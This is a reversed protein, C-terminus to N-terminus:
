TSRPRTSTGVSRPRPRGGDHVPRAPVLLVRGRRERSPSNRTQGPSTVPFGLIAVEARALSLEALLTRKEEALQSVIWQEGLLAFRDDRLKARSEREEDMLRQNDTRATEVQTKADDLRNSSDTLEAELDAVRATVDRAKRAAVKAAIQTDALGQKMADLRSEALRLSSRMRSNEDQGQILKRQLHIELGVGATAVLLSAVIGVFWAPIPRPPPPSPVKERRPRTLSAATPSLDGPRAPGLLTSLRAEDADLGANISSAPEGGQSAAAECPPEMREDDVRDETSDGWSEDPTSGSLDAAPKPILVATGQSVLGEFGQDDFGSYASTQSSDAIPGSAPPLSASANLEAAFVSMSSPRDEIVRSMARRCLEDLRPDLSPRLTLADPPETTRRLKLVEAASGKFPPYGTLLQYLIVGLSYIDTPEGISDRDGSCQEPSMYTPTGLLAHNATLSAEQADDRRVIGFDMIIPRGDLDIMVNSPKLDRHIIKKKHAYAMALAIQAVLSAAQRPNMPREGSVLSGLEKGNIYAMALFPRGEVQGVEYISCFGAHHTPHHLSAAARAERRFRELIEADDHGGYLPVKLAVPRQLDDDYALYVVSMGGRGLRREVRYKGLSQPIDDAASFWFACQKCFVKVGLMSQDVSQMADCKPCIVKVLM